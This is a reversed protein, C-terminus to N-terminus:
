LKCGKVPNKEVKDGVIKKKKPNSSIEYGPFRV